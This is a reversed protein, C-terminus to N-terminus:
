MLYVVGLTFCSTCSTTGVRLQPITDTSSGYLLPISVQLCNVQNNLDISCTFPTYAGVFDPTLLRFIYGPTTGGNVINHVGGAVLNTGGIRTIIQGGLLGFVLAANRDSSLDAQYYALEGGQIQSNGQILFSGTMPGSTVQLLFPPIDIFQTAVATQSGTTTTTTSTTTLQIITSDTSSAFTTTFV